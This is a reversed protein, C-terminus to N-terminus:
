REGSQGDADAIRYTRAGDRIEAVVSLRHRKKLAGAMFGRVSHPLWGAAECMQPLTAGEGRRLLAILLEAKTTRNASTLAPAPILIAGARKRPRRAEPASKITGRCEDTTAPETTSKTM